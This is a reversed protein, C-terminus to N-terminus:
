FNVAKKIIRRSFGVFIENAVTGCKSSITEIDVGVGLIVVEDNIDADIDSIDIFLQDMCINGVINCKKGKCLVYPKNQVRRVGDGYGISVDAVLMDRLAIFSQGYGLSDGSHLQKIGIIRSKISMVPSLRKDKYGYLGIGLRVYDYQYEPYKLIGESSQVHTAFKYGKAKLMKVIHDYREFQTKSFSINDTDCLHTYVANINLYKLNFVALIKDKEHYDIGLRRMGTDIQLHCKIPIKNANLKQAHEYSTISITLDFFKVKVLREPYVYGLILINGIIGNKRLEIAEELTAVAFDKIGYRNLYPAIERAGHGYGDAKVVTMIKSDTLLSFIDLNHELNEINLEMFAREMHEKKLPKYFLSIAIGLVFSIIAEIIFFLFSNLERFYHNLFVFILPHAIYVALCLVPCGKLRHSNYKCLYSFLYYACLPLIFTMSSYDTKLMNRYICSEILLLIFSLIFKLKNDEKLIKKKNFAIYDGMVYFITGYFIGNHAYDFISFYFDFCVHKEILLGITYFIYSILLARSHSFRKILFSSMLCSLIASPFYWLHYFTGNCIFKKIIVSIDEKLILLPLYLLSALIYIKVLKVLHKKLNLNNFDSRLNIFYASTMMFFPVALRCLVNTLYYNMCMSIDMLPATHIALVMLTAIIRFIDLAM